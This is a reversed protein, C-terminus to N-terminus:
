AMGLGILVRDMNVLTGIVRREPLPGKKILTPVALINETKAQGPSKQIDIIKLRCRNALREKCIHRLNAIALLSSPTHNAIFLHLLFPNEQPKTRKMYKEEEDPPRFVNQGERLLGFHTFPPNM